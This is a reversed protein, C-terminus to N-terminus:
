TNRGYFYGMMFLRRFGPAKDFPRKDYFSQEAEIYKKFAADAYMMDAEGYGRDNFWKREKNLVETFHDKYCDAYPGETGCDECKANGNMRREIILKTSGCKPCKPVVSEMSM